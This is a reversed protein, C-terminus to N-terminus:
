IAPNVSLIKKTLERATQWAEIDAFTQFTAM